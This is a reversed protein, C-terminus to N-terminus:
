ECEEVFIEDIEPSDIDKACQHCVSVSVDLDDALRLAETKNEAEVEGLYKTAVVKGYCAYKTM